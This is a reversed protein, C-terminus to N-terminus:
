FLRISLSIQTGSAKLKHDNKALAYAYWSGYYVNNQDTIEKVKTSYRNTLSFSPKMMFTFRNRRILIGFFFDPQIKPFARTVDTSVYNGVTDAVERLTSKLLYNFNIGVTIGLVEGLSAAKIGLPIQIFTNDWKSPGNDYGGHLYFVGTSIAHHYSIYHDVELGYFFAKIDGRTLSAGKTKYSYSTLGGTFYTKTQAYAMETSFSLLFLLVSAKFM